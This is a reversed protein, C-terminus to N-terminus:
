GRWGSVGGAVVSWYYWLIWSLLYRGPRAPRVLRLWWLDSLALSCRSQGGLWAQTSRIAMHAGTQQMGASVMLIKCWDNLLSHGPWLWSVGNDPWCTESGLVSVPDSMILPMRHLGKYRCEPSATLAGTIDLIVSERKWIKHKIIVVTQLKEERETQNWQKSRVGCRLNCSM